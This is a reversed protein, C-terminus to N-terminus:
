RAWLAAAIGGLVGVFDKVVGGSVEGCGRWLPGRDGVAAPVGAWRQRRAASGM